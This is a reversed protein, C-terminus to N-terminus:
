AFGRLLRRHPDQDLALDDRRLGVLGGAKTEVLLVALAEARSVEILGRVNEDRSGMGVGGRAGGGPRRGVSNQGRDPGIGRREGFERAAMGIALGGRMRGPSNAM